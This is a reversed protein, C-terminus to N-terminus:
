TDVAGHEAHCSYCQASTPIMSGTPSDDFGFFAWKGPFRGVDKVHVERGMVEGSQFNGRQNISGKSQAGRVELVFVTKDPWTGTEKFAKYASPNVFVNDFMHHDSSQAAPSYSMDLGTSLYVWERYNEPLKMKGDSTYQPGDLPAGATQNFAAISALLVAGALIWKKNLKMGATEWTHGCCEM